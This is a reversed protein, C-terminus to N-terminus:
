SAVVVEVSALNLASALNPPPAQSTVLIDILDFHGLKVNRVVNFKSHDAVLIVKKSQKVLRERIATEALDFYTIGQDVSLGGCGLILTDLRIDRRLDLLSGDVLSAEETMLGGLLVLPSRSYQFSLAAHLSNTVATLDARLALQAAVATCTSGVDIGIVEGFGVHDSTAKAIRSKELPRQETRSSPSERATAGGHVRRLLGSKDLFSLDRRVTMQSVGFDLAARSVDMEGTSGVIELIRARRKDPTLPLSQTEPAQQKWNIKQGRKPPAQTLTRLFM